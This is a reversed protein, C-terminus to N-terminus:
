LWFFNAFLLLLQIANNKRNVGVYRCRVFYQQPLITKRIKAFVIFPLHYRYCFYYKFWFFSAFLLINSNNNNKKIV